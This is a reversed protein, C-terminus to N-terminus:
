YGRYGGGASMNKLGPHNLIGGYRGQLYRVGAIINSVPDTINTNYGPLAYQKFTGPITQMLGQSPHGARANSDWRNIANPNGGSEKQIIMNLAAMEQANFNRGLAQAAQSIWQGVNGSPQNGLTGVNSGGGGPGTLPSINSTASTATDRRAKAANLGKFLAELYGSPVAPM